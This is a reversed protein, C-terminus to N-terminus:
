SAQARQWESVSGRAGEWEALRWTPLPAPVGNVPEMLVTSSSGSLGAGRVGAGM